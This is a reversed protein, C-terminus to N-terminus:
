QTSEPAAGRKEQSTTHWGGCNCSYARIPKTGPQGRLRAIDAEASGRNPYKKKSTFECGDSREWGRPHGLAPAQPGFRRALALAARVTDHMKKMQVGGDRAIRAKASKSMKLRTEASHHYGKTFGSGHGRALRANAAESMKRRTEDSVTFGEHPQQLPLADTMPVILEPIVSTPTPLAGAPPTQAVPAAFGLLAIIMRREDPELCDRKTLYLHALEKNDM